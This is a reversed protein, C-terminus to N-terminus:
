PSGHCRTVLFASSLFISTLFCLLKLIRGFTKVSAQEEATVKDTQQETLYNMPEEMLEQLGEFDEVPPNGRLRPSKMLRKLGFHDEVPEGKHKPTRLLRKVGVMDEVPTNREKPMKTVRRVTAPVPTQSQHIPTELLEKVGDLSVVGSKRARPTKLLKGRLDELPEAKQKPTKFIRRVGTLCEQQEAKQKPTKLLKGRIDELPEAKQRPTKSIRKVGTLCVPVEAKQKPTKVSSTMPDTDQSDSESRVELAPADSVFSSEEDGSLLRQVAESNYRQSKVTSAASLPSVMM